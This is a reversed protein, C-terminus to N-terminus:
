KEAKESEVPIRAIQCDRGSADAKSKNQPRGRFGRFGPVFVQAPPLGGVGTTRVRRRLVVRRLSQLIASFYASWTAPHCHKRASELRSNWRVCLQLRKAFYQIRAEEQELQLLLEGLIVKARELSSTAPATARTSFPAAIRDWRREKPAFKLAFRALRGLTRRRLFAARQWELQTGQDEIVARKEDLQRRAVEIRCRVKEEDQLDAHPIFMTCLDVPNEPLVMVPPAPPLPVRLLPAVTQMLRKVLALLKVMRPQMTKEFHTFENTGVYLLLFCMRFKQMWTLRASAFTVSLADRLFPWYEYINGKRPRAPKYIPTASEVGDHFCVRPVIRFEHTLIQRFVFFCDYYDYMFERLFVRLTETRHLGYILSPQLNTLYAVANEFPGREPFIRVPPKWRLLGPDRVASRMGTMVSGADGIATLCEAVFNPHWEDDDAAWFFFPGRAKELVFKFNADWGMNRPQRHYVIRPDRQQWGRAVSETEPTASCNDSIHIELNRYTQNVLCRLTRDLGAPRNYTPIGVSVLPEDLEVASSKPTLM